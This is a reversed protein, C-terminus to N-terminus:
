DASHKNQLYTTVPELGTTEMAFVANHLPQVNTEDALLIPEIGIATSM